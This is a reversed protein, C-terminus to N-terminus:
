SRVTVYVRDFLDTGTGVDFDNPGVWPADRWLVLIVDLWSCLLDTSLAPDRVEQLASEHAELALQFIVENSESMIPRYLSLM